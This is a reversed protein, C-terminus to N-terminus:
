IKVKRLRYKNGFVMGLWIVLPTVFLYAIIYEIFLSTIWSPLSVYHNTYFLISKISSYISHNLDGILFAIFWLLKKGTAYSLIFAFLTVLIFDTSFFMIFHTFTLFQPAITKIYKHAPLVLKYTGYTFIYIGLIFCLYGYILWLFAIFYKNNELNM